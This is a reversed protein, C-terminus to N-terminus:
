LLHEGCIVCSNEQKDKELRLKEDQEDQEMLIKVM